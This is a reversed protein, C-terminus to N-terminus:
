RYIKKIVDIFVEINLITERTFFHEIKEVQVLEDESHNILCLLEHLTKHRYVLYEGEKIGKETIIIDRYKEFYVYGKDHLTHILKTASSPKVNLELSVDKVRVRDQKLYLRYIMELYDEMAPTLENQECLQYGKLTYYHSHHEM